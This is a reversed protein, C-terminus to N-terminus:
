ARHDPLGAVGALRVVRGRLGPQDAEGLRHRTFQRRPVDRHIRHRGPKTSVSMVFAMASFADPSQVACIGSPRM